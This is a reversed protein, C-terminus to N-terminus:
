WAAHFVVTVASAPLSALGRAIAQGAFQWHDAPAPALVIRGADAALDTVMLGLILLLIVNAETSLNLRRPRTVLRRFMAYGVAVIVLVSFADELILYPATDSLFPLSFSETVGKGFFEVTGLTLVVFGWFITAHMLGPWFDNALLRAQGFVYVIVRGVRAPVQDWRPMPKGKMLLRALYAARRGFLVAAAAILAYFLLSGPVIGYWQHSPLM